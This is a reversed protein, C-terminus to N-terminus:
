TQEFYNNLSLKFSFKLETLCLYLSIANFKILIQYYFESMKQRFFYKYFDRERKSSM